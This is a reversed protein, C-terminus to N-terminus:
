RNHNLSRNPNQNMRSLQARMAEWRQYQQKKAPDPDSRGQLWYDFWDVNGRQSVLREWPKVLLHTGFPIWILEVPKARFSLGSFWEWGGLLSGYAYEEIRVPATVRDLNFGPANKLWLDLSAGSPL